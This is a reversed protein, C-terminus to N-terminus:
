CREQAGKWSFAEFTLWGTCVGSEAEGTESLAGSSREIPHSYLSQEGLYLEQSFAWPSPVFM